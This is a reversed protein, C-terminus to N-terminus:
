VARRRQVKCPIGSGNPWLNHGRQLLKPGPIICIFATQKVHSAAQTKWQTLALSLPPFRPFISAFANRMECKGSRIRM